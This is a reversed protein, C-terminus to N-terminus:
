YTRTIVEPCTNGDSVDSVFAVVPNATCNDAEDTVATVDSAPVDATCEVNVAAPNSATPNTVDGITITQIVNTTNGCDDTVSYTRTIVEPCSNGDSVDSVFAVVPNCPSSINTVDLPNQTPVDSACEVTIDSPASATPLDVVCCTYTEPTVFSCNAPLQSQEEFMVDLTVEISGATWEGDGLSNCPPSGPVYNTYVTPTGGNWTNPYIYVEVVSNENYWPIDAITFSQNFNASTQMQDYIIVGDVYVTVWYDDNPPTGQPNPFCYGSMDVTLTVSTANGGSGNGTITTLAANDQNQAGGFLDDAVVADGTTTVTNYEIPGLAGGTSCCDPGGAVGIYDITFDQSGNTCTNAPWANPDPSITFVTGIDLM